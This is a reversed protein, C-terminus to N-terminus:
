DIYLYGVKDKDTGDAMKYKLVYFYTGSPLQKEGKGEAIGRFWNGNVGYGKTEYVQNGWRNFIMLSNDPASELGSIHFYDNLGDGNPSVANYVVIDSPLVSAVKIRGLTFIGDKDVLATATQQNLDIATSYYKWKSENVDWRVIAISSQADGATIAIPTTDSNWTLTLPVNVTTQNSKLEWYEADDILNILLYKQHHPYLTNSNELLYRSKFVNNALNTQGIALPRFFNASGIPFQFQNKGKREVIGDVYSDNNTNEHTANSEFVFAGGLDDNAVIGSNFNSNGRVKIDGSLLFAPQTTANEFQINHFDSWASGSITQAGSLGKFHTLGTVIAPTYTVLGDNNYNAYVLFKGDNVFDGTPKNNFDSVTSFQTGTLVVLEGTNVTQAALKDMVLLSLVIASIYMKTM